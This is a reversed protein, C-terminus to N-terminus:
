SKDPEEPELDMFEIDDFDEDGSLDSDIIDPELSDDLDPLGAESLGGSSSHSSPREEDDDMTLIDDGSLDMIGDDSMLDSEIFDSDIDGDFGPLEGDSMVPSPASVPEPASHIDGFDGLLGSNDDNLDSPMEDGGGFGDLDDFDDDLGPLGGMDSDSEDVSGFDDPLPLDGLDDNGSVRPAEPIEPSIRDVPSVQSASGSVAVVRHSAGASPMGASGSTVTRSPRLPEPASLGDERRREAVYTVIRERVPLGSRPSRFPAPTGGGSHSSGAKARKKEKKRDSLYPLVFTLIVFAVAGVWVAFYIAVFIGKIDLRFGSTLLSFLLLIVFTIVFIIAVIGNRELKM